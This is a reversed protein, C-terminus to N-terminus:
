STFSGVAVNGFPPRLGQALILTPAPPPLPRFRYRPCGLSLPLRIRALCLPLLLRGLLMPRALELLAVPDHRAQRGAYSGAWSRSRKVSCVRRWFYGRLYRGCLDAT